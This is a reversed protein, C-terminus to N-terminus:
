FPAIITTKRILGALQTNSVQVTVIKYDITDAVAGGVRSVWTQRKFNPYGAISAETAVYLSEVATYRPAGKALELRESALQAAIIRIRSSSTAQALRASFVALSLLVGGLISLAVVVEVLTLGRRPGIAAHM